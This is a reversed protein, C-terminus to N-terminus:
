LLNVVRDALGKEGLIVSMKGSAVVKELVELERLRMLTPNEALLRATNAQSRLAATEERRTILNAEAAKRAEMVKNMLDKMDGPLILDRIGLSAVALGLAEARTSLLRAAEVAVTEKDALLTDFERAGVVARLALQAERYLAQKYDDATCVARRPDAVRYTAVTNMRLSVKDASMIEQGSVDLTAERLDVEVLRVDAAGKWFAWPGPDLTDAYRGDLFLVGVCGRGVAVTELHDRATPNRVIVRLDDHEFRPRRADVVEVSVERPDTWFVHQGPGLIRAFRRDVWVLARQDDKLDLVQAFGKLEGSKVILDLKEHALFPARRSVVEVTTRGLPDFFWHTGAGLLGRFEGNRFRLGTEFGRITYRKLAYFM